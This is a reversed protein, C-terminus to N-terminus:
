EIGQELEVSSALHPSFWVKVCCEVFFGAV